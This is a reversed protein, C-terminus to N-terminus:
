PTKPEGPDVPPIGNEPPVQEAQTPHTAEVKRKFDDWLAESLQFKEKGTEKTFELSM